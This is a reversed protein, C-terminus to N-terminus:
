TKMRNIDGVCFWPHNSESSFAYKSHDNSYKFAFDDDFKVDLISFVYEDKTGSCNADLIGGKGNGWSETYLSTGIYPVVVNDYFGVEWDKTKAFKYFVKGAQSHFRQVVSDQDTNREKSLMKFLNPFSKELDAGINGDFVNVGDILYAEAIADL